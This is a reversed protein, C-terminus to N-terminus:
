GPYSKLGDDIDGHFVSLGEAVCKYIEEEDLEIGQVDANRAKALYGILEGGGCGLDLVKAGPEIIRGFLEIIWSLM